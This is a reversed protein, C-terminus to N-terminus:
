EVIEPLGQPVWCVNKVPGLVVSGAVHMGRSGISSRVIRRDERGGRSDIRQRAVERRKRSRGRGRSSRGRRAQWLWGRRGRM